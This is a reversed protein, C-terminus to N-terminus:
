ESRGVTRPRRRNDVGSQLAIDSQQVKTLEFEAIRRSLVKKISNLLEYANEIKVKLRKYARENISMEVFERTIQYETQATKDNITGNAQQYLSNFREKYVAKSVDARLGVFEQAQGLYYLETSIRMAYIELSETDVSAVMSLKERVEAVVEDLHESLPRVIELVLKNVTKTNNVVEQDLISLDDVDVNLLGGDAALNKKM